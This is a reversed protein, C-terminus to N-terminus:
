GGAGTDIVINGIQDVTATMGPYVVTTAAPEEIVAPGHISVGPQLNSREYIASDLHGWEDYDVVRRSKMRGDGGNGAFARLEPKRAPVIGVVHFNVVEIPSDLRYTYAREHLEHFRANAVDVDLHASAVPVRVTHEQGHYRMDLFRSIQVADVPYGAAAFFQRARAEMGAFIERMKPLNDRTSAVLTTQIFDQMADTMLMGWASFHGPAQPILVRKVHLEKALAAAHMAGGGGFAILTFDRPDYGRRVSVLKLANIMNANAIRIVGLAADEV